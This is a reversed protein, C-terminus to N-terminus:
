VHFIPNPGDHVTLSAPRARPTHDAAPGGDPQGLDHERACGEHDHHDEGAVREALLDPEGPELGIGARREERRGAQRKGCQGELGGAPPGGQEGGDAKGLEHGVNPVAQRRGGREAVRQGVHRLRQHARGHDPPHRTLEVQRAARAQGCEEGPAHQAAGRDSAHQACGRAGEEALLPDAPQLARGPPPEAVREAHEHDARAQDGPERRGRKGIGWGPALDDLAQDADGAADRRQRQDEAEVLPREGVHRRHQEDEDREPQSHPPHRQGTRGRGEEEGGLRRERCVVEPILQVEAARDPDDVELQERADQDRRREPERDFHGLPLALRCRM